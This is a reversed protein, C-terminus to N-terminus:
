VEEVLHLVVDQSTKGEGYLNLRSKPSEDTAQEYAALITRVDMGGLINWGTEVTEIWETEPRLTICPVGFFYAEKQM